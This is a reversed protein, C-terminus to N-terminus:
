PDLGVSKESNSALRLAQEYYELAENMQGKLKYVFGLISLSEADSENRRLKKLVLKELSLISKDREFSATEIQVAKLYHSIADM